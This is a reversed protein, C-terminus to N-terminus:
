QTLTQRTDHIDNDFFFLVVSCLCVNVRWDTPTAPVRTLHSCFCIILPAEQPSKPTLHVPPVSFPLGSPNLLAGGWGGKILLSFHQSQPAAYPSYLTHPGACHSAVLLGEGTVAVM